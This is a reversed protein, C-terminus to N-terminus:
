NIPGELYTTGDPRSFKKYEKVGKTVVVYDVKEVVSVPEIFDIRSGVEVGAEELEPNEELLQEDVVEPLEVVVKEKVM